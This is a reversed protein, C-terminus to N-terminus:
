SLQMTSFAGRTSGQVLGAAFWSFSLLLFVHTLFVGLFFVEIPGMDTFYAWFKAIPPKPSGKGAEKVTM